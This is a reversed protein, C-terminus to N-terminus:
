ILAKTKFNEDTHCYLATGCKIWHSSHIDTKLPINIIYNNLASKINKHTLQLAIVYVPCEYNDTTVKKNESYKFRILPMDQWFINMLSETLINKNSDWRAGTLHLGYIFFEENETDIEDENRLVEFEFAVDELPTNYKRSFTLSIASFFMKGFFLADLCIIKPCKHNMWKKIFDVRKIINDIYYSLNGPMINGQINRWIQPVKNRYIGEAVKNLTESFPFIGNFASKLNNLTEIITEIIHKLLKAEYMCVRELPEKLLFINEEYLENINFSDNLKDNIDNIVAIVQDQFSQDEKDQNPPVISSMYSLSSFFETAIMIDRNIVGNKNCGFVQSSLNLSINEIHMIVHSYECRQPILQEIDNLNACRKDKIINSNCYNRLLHRLCRNDLDNVIKGGYNCEGILYLCIDFPIHNTNNILNQMQMISIRLDSDDFDYPINWSQAGFNKREKVITHFLCISFLLKSFIKDNGPCGEFFEKNKIPESHYVNLLTERINLPYDHTIKISNQLISIPFENTPYSSLWLRFNLATNFVNCDGFMKELEIMWHTVLHCNQLFIWGGERRAKQILFKAKAEQSKSMSLSTFKSLYGKRKAYTSILELPSSCSPLIFLLPTLPSSEKYLESIKLEPSIIQTNGLINQIMQTIQILIKDPRLTKTLILKQFLSLTDIWPKPLLYNELLESNYYQKWVKHNSHFNDALDYFAPLSKSLDCIKRWTDPPLWDVIDNSIPNIHNLNTSMFYKIEEQTTEENALLIKICLLFSYVIKHKESLSRCISIYFSQTFSFKLFQLRREIVTSRNSTEISRIYLQIFWTFSFCYMYNLYSLSTLTDFLNVCYKVFQIYTDRVKSIELSMINAMEQKKIVSLSLNKSSDLTKIANEDELINISTSSLTCLINDEQQKLIKKNHVDEILLTNFKEQLEPYEKSIVVDLLKDQLTENQISFDIVTLKSFTECSYQPNFLRTTIYLRFDHSYKIVNCGTDLYLIGEDNYIRRLLFPELLTDLKDGVNEILIPNGNEISYQIVSVYNSDTLTIVKLDNKKEIAKIWQNAQNHSDIFLCWLDSNNMIIANELSFRHKPLGYTYWDNIESEEGLVNKLNYNVTFSIKFDRVYQKWYELIKDRFLINYSSMYSIIGCSIMIDGVLNNYDEQLSEACQLWRDKEGGLSAILSGAKNLKSTCDEVEKELKVKRQMTEQLSNNLAALKANLASLTRRKENLFAEAENCEKQAALLKEKKPAVAKAVEDYSVMAHVWKCLGEAASSAKAVVHPKFNSDSMYKNKITEMINPPINDKDYDKLIQLFNMDGLIRKSPGWYDTYKKGTTPDIPRDPPVDLMVCVAAIVLKVTDPPNKMAKVLTIDTPKLTNLAAVADELIPIAVALDAECEQKLKGAIEAKKNAIEEEQQVLITAAEVSINETEVEKMTIITQQASFELQPKLMMLTAKMKEVQQAALKLKELGALYRNRKKTINKQKKPILYTYLRLMHLFASLTGYIRRTTIKYYDASIEQVNNHLAICAKVINPKIQDPVNINEIFKSGVQMLASTPWTEYWNMTCYKVLEPYNHLYSKFAKNASNFCIVIHLKNKCQELFYDMVSHISIEANRNGDQAHLRVTEVIDYKENISFLNPIEGTALLSSLDCLLNDTMQKDKLFLVFNKRLGGCKKLVSKIDERWISFDHYSYVSPEFLEQQQIYAALNTISKKGSGTPSIILLNSRPIALTRSIKILCELVYQSIVIDIQKKFNTNYDNLYFLVKNKLKEMSNIEEYRKNGDKDIDMFNTFVLDSFSDKTIQNNNFKPLYDFATEFSDRFNRKIIERIQLFLWDKDNNDLIRDGFVRWIEHAWLRIFTVKTEVSEKQLLSYGNIVKSIDRISFQYQFKVPTPQLVEIVSNYIDITAHTISTVTNLVDTAFSNRKLNSFLVNSFIRYLMDTPFMYMTYLNFHTLLRPCIKTKINGTIALLFIINDVFIQEPETVDYFYGYSHYQRLFELIANTNSKCERADINLDDIYSICYQNKPPGYHKKGIKRLKLLLLQQMKNIIDLFTFNFTNIVYKEKLSKSKLFHKVLCTKGVSVEGCLLFPKEYKIHKLLMHNYKITNITPVFIENFDFMELVKESKLLDGWYKWNGVGKFIYFNDQILGEHPLTIDFNKVIEPKPYEKNTGSWLSTCFTNFKIHSNMDLNGGLGWVSSLVLAIQIWIIFHNAKGKEETVETQADKLYMELLNLVSMIYHLKGITSTASCYKHIFELSPDIIWDLLSCLIDEYGNYINHKFIHTQIYPRWDISSSDIYIIGCRSLVAPSAEMINMTEFITSVSDSRSIKEGSELYLVKNTDLVTYLNEIWVNNLHGDFVVWKRDSSHDESFSRFIKSCIGDKWIKLKKDFYGFLQDTDIIGPIITEMKVNTGFEIGEKHLFSLIDVLINLITTKGVYPDGVIILGSHIYMLEFVQIIKLKFVNHVHLSRTKCMTDLAQFFITYNPHILNINPFMNHVIDKFIVVDLNCLKPLNIDILSRALLMTENEDPFSKKLFITMRIVAKISCLNFINCSECWIQNSLIIYLTNLKLALRKSDLLGAAFLEIEIIKNVDPVMMSVTRFLIKLNDPLNSHRSSGLNTITCIYGRSNLNLTSDDLTITKLNTAIAQSVCVLSQTVISLLEVELGDFNELCLWAGCSIFGKIVQHLSKYSLINTCNFVHFQVAVNKALSKVTETKGSAPLGIVAGYLHYKYAQMLTYFCRDTLITNVIHQKYYNYEYGYQVIADFTLVEVDNEQLYYRLQAIWEFDTVETINKDILLKIIDKQNTIIIILSILVDRYRQTLYNKMENVLCTLCNVYKLYLSNLTEFNFSMLCKHVESTWYLQFICIVIMNPFKAITNYSFTENFIQWGQFINKKITSRIENELHILWKEEYTPFINIFNELRLEEGYEGIISYILKEDNIKVTNIGEFCKRLLVHIKSLNNSEFLIEKIENDSLFFFRPFYLKKTEIYNTVGYNIKELNASVNYLSELIIPSNMEMFTPTECIKHEINALVKNVETYLTSETSLFMEINPYCFISNLSNILTQIDGWENLINQIRVLSMFFETVESIIPKVFSSTKIEEVTLIHDELLLEIENLNSFVNMGFKSDVNIEFSIEDWQEIMRSLKQQLKLERNASISIAEYKEIDNMLNLAIIKRLSTGANPTLDFNCILSMETWHRKQLAPNCMCIVLPLYRKFDNINNIAQWCLTLPAPQQMPDPDDAIGSFKFCKNTSLDMKIKKKFLQSMETIKELYDLTKKEIVTADLWEYSGDLWVANDKQWQYITFILDYFPMIVDQLEIVKSFETEPFKFLQEEENIRQMECNIKNVQQLLGRYYEIYEEVRNIDDMNDLISLQPIVNDIESNLENIRKQMDDELENKMAECLVNNQKFVPEIEHLWNITRSNLKIHDESLVTIELLTSLMSISKRIKSELEKILVQLAYSIYETLDILSKADKPVNLAKTRFDEFESCISLNFEKHYKILKVLFANVINHSEEKLSEKAKNQELKGTIYYKNEVLANAKISYINYKQIQKLYLDFNIKGLALSLIRRRITPACIPYFEEIIHTIYNNVPQYLHHLIGQLKSHSEEIYWDPLKIKIYKMHTKINICEELPTLDQAISNINDIISHYTSYVEPISPSVSLQNDQFVLQLKIQPCYHEDTMTNLIHDISRIMFNLIQQVFVNTICQIICLLRKINIRKLFKTRIIAKCTGAHFENMITLSRKRIDNTIMNQFESLSMLGFCYYDRFNCIVTPFKIHAINIITKVPRLFLFYKKLLLKRHKSFASYNYVEREKLNSIFSDTKKKQLSIVVEVTFYQMDKIYM